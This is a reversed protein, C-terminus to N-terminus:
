PQAQFIVKGRQEFTRQGQRRPRHGQNQHGQQEGVEAYYSRHAEGIFCLVKDRDFIPRRKAADRLRFIKKDLNDENANNEEKSEVPASGGVNKKGSAHKNEERTVKAQVQLAQQRSASQRARSRRGACDRVRRCRRESVHGVANESCRHCGQNSAQSKPVQRQKAPSHKEGCACDPGPPSRSIHARLGLRESLRVARRGSPAPQSPENPM